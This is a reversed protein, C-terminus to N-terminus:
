VARTLSQLTLEKSKTQGQAACAARRPRPQRCYLQPLRQAVASIGGTVARLMVAQLCLFLCIILGQPRQLCAVKALRSQTITANEKYSQTGRPGGRQRLPGGSKAAAAVVLLGGLAGAAGGVPLETDAQSFLGVFHTNSTAFAVAALTATQACRCLGQWTRSM